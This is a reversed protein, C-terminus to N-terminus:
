NLGLANLFNWAEPANIDVNEIGLGGSNNLGWQNSYYTDNTNLSGL